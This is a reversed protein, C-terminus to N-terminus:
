SRCLAVILDDTGTYDETKNPGFSVLARVTTGLPYVQCGKIATNNCVYDPDYYYFTGWPDAMTSSLYPGRWNPFAGDTAIIGAAPANLYVETDIACPTAPQHNPYQGTDDYLRTVAVAIQRLEAQARAIQAKQRASNLSALIVSSLIGIIAIVVLLEILTFGRRQTSGQM